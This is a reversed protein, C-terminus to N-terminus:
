PIVIYSLKAGNPVAGSFQVVFSTGDTIQSVYATITCPTGSTEFGITIVSNQNLAPMSGSITVTK